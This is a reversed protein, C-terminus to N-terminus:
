DPLQDSVDSVWHRFKWHLCHVKLLKSRSGPLRQYHLFWHQFDTVQIKWLFGLVDLEWFAPETIKTREKGLPKGVNDLM